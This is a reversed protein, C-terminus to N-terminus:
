LTLTPTLTHLRGSPLKLLYGAGKAIAKVGSSAGIYAPPLEVEAYCSRYVEFYMDGGAGIFGVHSAKRGFTRLVLTGSSGQGFDVKAM